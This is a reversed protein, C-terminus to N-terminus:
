NQPCSMCTGLGSHLSTWTCQRSREGPEQTRCLICLLGTMPREVTRDHTVLCLGSVTQGMTLRGSWYQPLRPGHCWQGSYQSLHSHVSLTAPVVKIMQAAKQTRELSRAAMIVHGGNEALTKACYWGM